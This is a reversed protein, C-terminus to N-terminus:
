IIYQGNQDLVKQWREPLLMIRREYITQDKSAFLQNLHNKVVENSTVTKGDLVKKRPGSCITIPLRWLQLIHHQLVKQCTALSTYPRANDQQFVAGKRNILEPRKERLSDNLKDLQHCYVESNITTNDALLEFFSERLIGGFLCCWRKKTFTLKQCAKLRNMTGAVHGRAKLMTTYLGNKTGLLLGSWFNIMKKVNSSRIVRTLVVVCIESRLSM